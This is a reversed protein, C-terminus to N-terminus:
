DVKPQPFEYTGRQAAKYTEWNKRTKSEWLHSWFYNESILKWLREMSVNM